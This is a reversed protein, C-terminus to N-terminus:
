TDVIIRMRPIALVAYARYACSHLLAYDDMHMPSSMWSYFEEPCRFVWLAMYFVFFLGSLHSPFTLIDAKTEERYRGDKGQRHGRGVM